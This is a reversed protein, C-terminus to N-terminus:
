LDVKTFYWMEKRFTGIDLLFKLLHTASSYAFAAIKQFTTLISKDKIVKARSTLSPLFVDKVM